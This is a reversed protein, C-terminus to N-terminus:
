INGMKDGSFVFGMRDQNIAARLDDSVGFYNERNFKTVLKSRVDPNEFDIRVCPLECHVNLGHSELYSHQQSGILLGGAVYATDICVGPIALREAGNFLEINRPRTLTFNPYAYVAHKNSINQLDDRKSEVYKPSMLFGNDENPKFNFVTVVRAEDMIPLFQRLENMTVARSSKSKVKSSKKVSGDGFLDDDDDDDTIEDDIGESVGPVIGFWIKNDLTDRGVKKIFDHFVEKCEKVLLGASCNAIIIEDVLKGDTTAHDFLAQVGLLKQVTETMAQIFSEKAGQYTQEYAHKKELNFERQQRVEALSMAVTGSLNESTTVPAYTSVVLDRVFDSQSDVQRNYDQEIIASLLKRESGTSQSENKENKPTEIERVGLTGDEEFYATYGSALQKVENEDQGINKALLLDAAEIKKDLDAMALPLLNIASKGYQSRVRKMCKKFTGYAEDTSEGKDLCEYYKDQAAQLQARLNKASEVEQTPKLQEFLEDYNFELNSQGSNEKSRYLNLLMKYYGNDVINLPIAGPSNETSYTVVIGKGGAALEHKEYVTPAFKELFERFSHVSLKEKVDKYVTESAPNSAISLISYLSPKNSDFEEFLISRYTREAM